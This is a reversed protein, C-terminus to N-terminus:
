LRRLVSPEFTAYAMLTEIMFTGHLSVKLSMEIFAHALTVSAARFVVVGYFQELVDFRRVRRLVVRKRQFLTDHASNRVAPSVVEDDVDSLRVLQLHAFEAVFEESGRVFEFYMRFGALMRYLM